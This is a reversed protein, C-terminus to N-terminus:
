PEELVPEEFWIAHRSVRDANGDPSWVPGQSSGETTLRTLRARSFDYVWLNSVRDGTTELAVHVATQRSDRVRIIRLLWVPYRNRSAPITSWVIRARSQLSRADATCIRAVRESSVDYDAYPVGERISEPLTVPVGLAELRSADFRVAMM